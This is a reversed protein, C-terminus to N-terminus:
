LAKVCTTRCAGAPPAWGVVKRSFLDLVVALYLWGEKTWIYTIDQVWVMDPAAVKFERNLLNAAVPLTHKSDTTVKFRRKLKSKLKANKMLKAVRHRVCRTGRKAPAAHVRPSGYIRRPGEFVQKIEQTINEDELKRKGLPKKKM